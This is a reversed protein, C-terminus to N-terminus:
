PNALRKYFAIMRRVAEYCSGRRYLSLAEDLLARLEAAKESPLKGAKV